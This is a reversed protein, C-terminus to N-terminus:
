QSDSYEIERIPAGISVSSVLCCRDERDRQRPVVPRCPDPDQDLSLSWPRCLAPNMILIGNDIRSCCVALLISSSYVAAKCKVGSNSSRELLKFVYYGYACTAGITDGYIGSCRNRANPFTARLNM